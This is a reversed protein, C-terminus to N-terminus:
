NQWTKDELDGRVSSVAMAADYIEPNKERMIEAEVIAARIKLFDEMQTVPKGNDAVGTEVVRQAYPDHSLIPYSNLLSKMAEKDEQGANVDEINM